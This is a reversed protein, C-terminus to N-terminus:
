EGGGPTQGKTKFEAVLPSLDTKRAMEELYSTSGTQKIVRNGGGHEVVQVLWGEYKSGSLYRTGSVWYDSVERSQVIPSSAPVAANEGPALNLEKISAGFVFRQNNSTRRAFFIWRLTVTVPERSMNRVNIDIGVSQRFSIDYWWYSNYNYTYNNGSSQNVADLTVFPLAGPPPKSTALATAPAPATPPPPLQSNTAPHFVLTQAVASAPQPVRLSPDPTGTTSAAVKLGGTAAATKPLPAASPTPTPPMAVTRATTDRACEDALQEPWSPERLRPSQDAVWQKYRANFRLNIESDPVGLAPYKALAAGESQAVLDAAPDKPPLSSAGSRSPDGPLEGQPAQDAPSGSAAPETTRPSMWLGREHLVLVAIIGICLLVLWDRM